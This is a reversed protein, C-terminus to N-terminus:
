IDLTNRDITGLCDNVLSLLDDLKSMKLLSTHDMSVEMQTPVFVVRDLYFM